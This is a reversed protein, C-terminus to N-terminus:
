RMEIGIGAYETRYHYSSPERGYGNFYFLSIWTNFPKDGLDLPEFYFAPKIAFTVRGGLNDLASWESTGTKTELRLLVKSNRFILFQSGLTTSGEVMARLGDFDSIKAGGSATTWFIDDETDASGGGQFDFFHRVEINGRFRAPSRAQPDTDYEYRLSAYDWGRSIQGVAYTASNSSASLANQYGNTDSISQGNSEHFYGLRWQGAKETDWELAFGPNQRRSIIPASGYIDDKGTPLMYFDYLGNYIFLLRDPMYSHHDWWMTKFLPYKLSIYFETHQEDRDLGDDDLPKVYAFYNPEDSQITEFYYNTNVADNDTAGATSALLLGGAIVILWNTNDM